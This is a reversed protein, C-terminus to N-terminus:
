DTQKSVTKKLLISTISKEGCSQKIMALIFAFFQSRYTHLMMMTVTHSFTGMCRMIKKMYSYTGEISVRHKYNMQSPSSHINLELAFM